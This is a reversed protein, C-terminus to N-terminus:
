TFLILAAIGSLVIALAIAVVISVPALQRAQGQGKSDQHDKFIALPDGNCGFTPCHGLEEGCEKHMMTKCVPCLVPAYHILDHCYVCRWGYSARRM